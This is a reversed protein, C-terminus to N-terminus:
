NQRFAVRIPAKWPPHALNWIVLNWASWWLLPYSVSRAAESGGRNRPGAHCHADTCFFSGKHLKLTHLSIASRRPMHCKIKYQSMYNLPSKRAPQGWRRHPTVDHSLQNFASRKVGAASAKIAAGCGWQCDRVAHRSIGASFWFLYIYAAAPSYRSRSFYLTVTWSSANLPNILLSTNQSPSMTQKNNVEKGCWDAEQRM